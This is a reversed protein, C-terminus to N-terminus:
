SAASALRKPESSQVATAALLEAFRAPHALHPFHGSGSWVLTRADPLNARLWTTEALSPDHGVVSTVPVGRGRVQAAGRVVWAELDAPPIDFLDAWYGLVIEQRPRSTTEVFSRVEDSVEDLRFVNAAVQSWAADFGPGRFVPALSQVLAAFPAVDATGEVQVLGNTPFQAAYMAAISASGSHGVLVPNELGAEVIAARVREVSATLNYTPADPSRGHGPLDLAIARRGPQITELASLTSRWMTRDFTLGHLLVLAPRADPCGYEDFALGAYTGSLSDTTSM